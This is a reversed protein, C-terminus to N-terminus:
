DIMPWIDCVWIFSFIVILLNIERFHLREKLEVSMDMLSQCINRTVEKQRSSWYFSLHTHWLRSLLLAVCCSSPITGQMRLRQSVDRRTSWAYHRGKKSRLQDCPANMHNCIATLNVAQDNLIKLAKANALGRQLPEKKRNIHKM